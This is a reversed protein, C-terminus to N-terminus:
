RAPVMPITNGTNQRIEFLESESAGTSAATSEAAKVGRETLAYLDDMTRRDSGPGRTLLRSEAAQLISNNNGGSAKGLGKGMQLDIDTSLENGVAEGLGIMRAEFKDAFEQGLDGAINGIKEQLEQERETIKRAAIDPLSETTAEFGDLLSRSAIQGLENMLGDMGGSMGSRIFEFMAFASEGLITGANTFVAVVANFADTIINVFNDAFWMAYAPIVVTLTHMSIEALRTLQLEASAVMMEWIKGLNMVVVEVFTFSAILANVTAITKERLWEMIPGLNEMVEQAMEVAPVLASQLSEALSKTGDAILMRIPALLAGFSEMLDGVAGSAREEMGALRNASEAKADLGKASLSQVLLLREEATTAEKIRPIIEGFAGFEGELSNQVLKLSEDLSKGTAEALGITAKTVDDLQDSGVGLMSAQRMLGLTVEDGVGTLAQLDSAFSQLKASQKEVEEGNLRLATELGEVAETQMDFADNAATISGIAADLGAKIAQLAIDVGALVGSGSLLSKFSIDITDMSKEATEAVDETTRELRQLSDDVQNIPKTAEDKAGIIYEIDAM